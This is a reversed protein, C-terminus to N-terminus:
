PTASGFFGLSLWAGNVWAYWEFPAAIGVLYVGRGTTGTPLDTELDTLTDYQGLIEMSITSLRDDIEAGTFISKYM